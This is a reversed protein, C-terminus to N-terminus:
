EGDEMEGRFWGVSTEGTKPNRLIQVTCPYITEVEELVVPEPEEYGDQLWCEACSGYYDCNFTGGFYRQPCEGRSAEVTEDIGNLGLKRRLAELYTM